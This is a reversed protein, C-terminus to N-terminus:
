MMSYELDLGVKNGEEGSLLLSLFCGMV